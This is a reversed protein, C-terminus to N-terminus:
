TKQLGVIRWLAYLACKSLQTQMRVTHFHLRRLGAGRNGEPLAGLGFAHRGGNATIGTSAQVISQRHLAFELDVLRAPLIYTRVAIVGIGLLCCM